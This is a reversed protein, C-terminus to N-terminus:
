HHSDGTKQPYTPIGFFGEMSRPKGFLAQGINKIMYIEGSIEPQYKLYLCYKVIM